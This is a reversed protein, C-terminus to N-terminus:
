LYYLLCSTAIILPLNFHIPSRGFNFLSLRVRYFRTLLYCVHCCLLTCYPVLYQDYLNRKNVSFSLQVIINLEVYHIVLTVAPICVKKKKKIKDNIDRKKVFCCTYESLYQLFFDWFVATYKHERCWLYHRLDFWVNLWGSYFWVNMCNTTSHQLIRNNTTRCVGLHIVPWPHVFLLM